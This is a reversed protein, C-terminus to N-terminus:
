LRYTLGVLTKAAHESLVISPRISQAMVGSVYSLRTSIEPLIRIQWSFSQGGLSAVLTAPVTVSGWIVSGTKQAM